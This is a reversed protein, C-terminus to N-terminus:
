SHGPWPKGHEKYFEGIWQKILAMETDMVKKVGANAAYNKMSLDGCHAAGPIINVPHQDTSPLQGDPRWDSAVTAPRWPDFEGVTWTLRTTNVNRWGGTIRNVHHVDVGYYEKTVLRSILKGQGRNQWWGFPENCLFWEWQRNGANDPTIDTYLPSTVNYSNFCETNNAGKWYGYGECADSLFLEKIYKAFGNLAKETGVGEAGPVPEKSGPWQNEVYDCWQSFNGYGTAFSTSQWAGLPNFLVSAFDDDHEVDALGFKDKLEHKATENRGLLIRDVEDIVKTVDASCNKPMAQEVTVGYQWLEDLAEVVASSAHYGWFTGPALAHTWATLAGSYSCGSLIWPAKDPTSTHNADFPLDVHQAFYTLDRISNDLTLHVMNDTTLEKYPSSTGWYRHELVIVGAGTNNALTGTITRNTAYGEYGALAVEGPTMLIIPSGPGAYFDGNFFFHQTFTGLEPHDHDILQQFTGNTVGGQQALLTLADELPEPPVGMKSPRFALASSALLLEAAATLTFSRM